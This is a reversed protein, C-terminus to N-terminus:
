SSEALAANVSQFSMGQGVLVGAARLGFAIRLVFGAQILRRGAKIYKGAEGEDPGRAFLSVSGWYIFFIALVSSSIHRM